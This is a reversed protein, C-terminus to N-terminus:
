KQQYYTFTRTWMRGKFSNLVEELQSELVSDTCRKETWNGYQDVASYSCQEVMNNGDSKYHWEQYYTLKGENDYFYKVSYNWDLSSQEILKGNKGWHTIYGGTSGDYHSYKILTTQALVNNPDYIYSTSSYYGCGSKAIELKGDKDFCVERTNGAEVRVSETKVLLNGNYEYTLFEKEGNGWHTKESVVNEGKYSYIKFREWSKTGDDYRNEATLQGLDNYIYQRKGLYDSSNHNGEQVIVKEKNGLWTVRFKIDINTNDCSNARIYATVCNDFGEYMDDKHYYFYTDTDGYNGNTRILRGKTDFVNTIASAGGYKGDGFNGRKITPTANPDIDYSEFVASEVPGNPIGLDEKTLGITTEQEFFLGDSFSNQAQAVSFHLLLFGITYNITCRVSFM